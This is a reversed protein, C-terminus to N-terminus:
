SPTQNAMCQEATAPSQETIKSQNFSPLNEIFTVLSKSHVTLVPWLCVGILWLLSIRNQPQQPHVRGVEFWHSFWSCSCMHSGFTNQWLGTDKNQLLWMYTSVTQFLSTVSMVLANLMIYWQSLIFSDVSEPPCPCMCCTLTDSM